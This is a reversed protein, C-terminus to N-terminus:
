MWMPLFLTLFMPLRTRHFIARGSRVSLPPAYYSGEVRVIQVAKLSCRAHIPALLEVSFPADKKNPDLSITVM